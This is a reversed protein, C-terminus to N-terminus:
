FYMNEMYKDRFVESFSLETIEIKECLGEIEGVTAGSQAALIAGSLSTNGASIAKPALNKPLLGIRAANEVDMFSGLGGSVYLKEVDSETIGCHAILAEIGASIAAKALQFQRVDKASLYIDSSLYFRDDRLRESLPSASEENLAGCEDILDEEVLVSILDILGSGCIGIPRKGNITSLLLNGNEYKVSSVAGDIGGVGCEISAGELAPGAASSTAYFKGGHSLLIEGNTGVDVFLSTSKSTHLNLYCAGSTIDSGIYASASALLCVDEAPLGLEEGKIFQTKTFVPTFPYVGIPSPDVGLFVHLMTTNASVVLKKVGNASMKLIIEKTKNLILEQLAKLKGKQCASIRSLVDAGYVGQPNLCSYTGLVEQTKASILAAALTTTGVDLALFFDEGEGLIASTSAEDTSAHPVEIILDSRVTSRCSLIYGKGDKSAGDVKGSILKVKCKGCKGTGGCTASLFIGADALLDLLNDGNKAAIVKGYNVVQITYAKNSKM